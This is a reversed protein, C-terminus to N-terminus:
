AILSAIRQRVESARLNETVLESHVARHQNIKERHVLMESENRKVLADLKAVTRDFSATISQLSNSFLM